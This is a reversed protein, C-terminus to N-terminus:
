GDREHNGDPRAPADSTRRLRFGPQHCLIGRHRWPAMEGYSRHCLRAQGPPTIFGGAAGDGGNTDGAPNVSVTSDNLVLRQSTYGLWGGVLLQNEDLRTMGASNWFATSADQGGSRSRFRSAGNGTRRNRVPLDSWVSRLCAPLRTGPILRAVIITLSGRIIKTSAMTM